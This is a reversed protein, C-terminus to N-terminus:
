ISARQHALWAGVRGQAEVNPRDIGLLWRRVTGETVGCAAALARGSIVGHQHHDRLMEALEGRLREWDGAPHRHKGRPWHGRGDLRSSKPKKQRTM